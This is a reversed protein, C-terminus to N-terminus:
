APSGPAVDGLTLLATATSTPETHVAERRARAGRLGVAGRVVGAAAGSAGLGAGGLVAAAARARLASGSNRRRGSAGGGPFSHALACACQWWRRGLAWVGPPPAAQRLHPLSRLELYENPLVQLPRSFASHVLPTRADYRLHGRELALDLLYGTVPPIVAGRPPRPQGVSAARLKLACAFLGSPGRFMM